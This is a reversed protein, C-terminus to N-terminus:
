MQMMMCDAALGRRQLLRTDGLAVHVKCAGELGKSGVSTGKRVKV